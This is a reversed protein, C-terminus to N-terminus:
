VELDRILQKLHKYIEQEADKQADIRTRRTERVKKTNVKLTVSYYVPSYCDDSDYSNWFEDQELRMADYHKAKKPNHEKNVMSISYTYINCRNDIKRGTRWDKHKWGGIRRDVTLRYNGIKAITRIFKKGNEREFEEDWTWKLRLRDKRNGVRNKGSSSSKNLRRTISDPM